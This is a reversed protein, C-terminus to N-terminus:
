MITLISVDCLKCKLFVVTKMLVGIDPQKDKLYHRDNNQENIIKLRFRTTRERQVSMGKMMGPCKSSVIRDQTKDIATPHGIKSLM